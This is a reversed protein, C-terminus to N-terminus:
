ASLQDHPSRQARLFPDHAGCPRRSSVHLARSECPASLPGHGDAPLMESGATVSGARDDGSIFAREPKGHPVLVAGLAPYRPTLNECELGASPVLCNSTRGRPAFLGGAIFGAAARPAAPDLVSHRGPRSPRTRKDGMEFRDSFRQEFGRALELAGALWLSADRVTRPHEPEVGRLRCIRPITSCLPDGAVQPTGLPLQALDESRAECSRPDKETHSM